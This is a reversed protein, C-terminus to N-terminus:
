REEFKRSKGATKFKFFYTEYCWPKEFLTWIFRLRCVALILLTSLTIKTSLFLLSPLNQALYLFLRFINVDQWSRPVFVPCIVAFFLTRNNSPKTSLNQYTIRKELSLRDTKHKQLNLNIFKIIIKRLVNHDIVIRWSKGKEDGSSYKSICSM